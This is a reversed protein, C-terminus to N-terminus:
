DIIQVTSGVKRPDINMNLRSETETGAIKRKKKEEKEKEKEELESVVVPRVIYQYLLYLVTLLVIVELTASIMTGYKEDSGYRSYWESHRITERFERVWNTLGLGIVTGFAMGIVNYDLAFRQIRM